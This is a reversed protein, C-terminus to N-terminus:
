KEKKELPWFVQDGGKQGWYSIYTGEDDDFDAGFSYLLFGDETKKYTLPGDNYPDIPLEKLYGTDVLEQLSDPYKGKEAKFRLSAIVILLADESAKIQHRREIAYKSIIWDKFLVLDKVMNDVQKKIDIGKSHLQWPTQNQLAEQYQYAKDLTEIHEKRYPGFLAIRFLDPQGERNQGSRGSFLDDLVEFFDRRHQPNTISQFIKLSEVERPILHGDGKGDDSFVHQIVDYMFYKEATFDMKTPNKSFINELQRQFEALNNSDVKTKSLILFADDCTIQQMGMGIFQGSSRRSATLQVGTRFSALIEAFSGNFKNESANLKAQWCSALIYTRMTALYFEIGIWTKTVHEPAQQWCYPKQSGAKYYGLAKENDNLWDKLIKLQAENMDGPWNPWPAESSFIIKPREKVYNRAEDYDFFANKAPDYDKPRSYEDLKAVYNVDINPKATFFLIAKIILFLFIFLSILLLVKYTKIKM